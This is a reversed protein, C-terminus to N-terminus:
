ELSLGLGGAVSHLAGDFATALVMDAWEFEVEEDDGSGHAKWSQEVSVRTTRMECM